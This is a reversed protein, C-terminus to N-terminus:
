SRLNPMEAAIEGDYSLAPGKKNDKSFGLEKDMSLNIETSLFLEDQNEVRKGNEDILTLTMGIGSKNWKESIVSYEKEPIFQGQVKIALLQNPSPHFIVKRLVRDPKQSPNFKAPQFEPRIFVQESAVVPEPNNYQIPNEIKCEQNHNLLPASQAFDEQVIIKDNTLNFKKNKIAIGDKTERFTIKKKVIEFIEINHVFIDRRAMQSLIFSALNELPIDETVEGLVKKLVKNTEQDYQGPSKREHYHFHVEFAM